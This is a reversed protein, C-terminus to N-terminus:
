EKEGEARARKRSDAPEPPTDARSPSPPTLSPRARKVEARYKRTPDHVTPAAGAGVLSKQTDVAAQEATDEAEEDFVERSRAGM